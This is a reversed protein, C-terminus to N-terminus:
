VNDGNQPLRGYVEDTVPELWENSVDTGPTIFAVHSFWSDATAGHWHKTGAPVRIVTGPVMRVPEGGDAQFWGSGATCLLVQDGGGDSGHHIHWNNRCGPEFSVNSVPVSGAALPALYSQGIFYQAYAENPEGLPFIQDFENDSM